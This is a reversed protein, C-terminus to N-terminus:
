ILQKQAVPTRLRRCVKGLRPGFCLLHASRGEIYSANQIAQQAHIKRLDMADTHGQSELKHCFAACIEAGPWTCFM